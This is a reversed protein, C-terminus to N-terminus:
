LQMNVHVGSGFDGRPQSFDCKSKALIIRLKGCFFFYLARTWVVWSREVQKVYEISNSRHNRSETDLSITKRLWKAVKRVVTPRNGGQFAAAVV